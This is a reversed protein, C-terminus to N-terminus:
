APQNDKLRKEVKKFTEITQRELKVTGHLCGPLVLLGVVILLGTLNM